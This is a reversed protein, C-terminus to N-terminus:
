VIQILKNTEIIICKVLAEVTITQQRYSKESKSWKRLAKWEETRKIVTSFKKGSLSGPEVAIQVEIDDHYQSMYSALQNVFNQIKDLQKVIEKSHWDERNDILWATHLKKFANLADLHQFLEIM